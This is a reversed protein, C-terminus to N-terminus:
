ERRFIRLEAQKELAECIADTRRALFTRYGKKVNPDWLGSSSDYPILHSKMVRAFHQKRRFPALYQYPKEGGISQNEEAVIFCLNCLSNTERASFGHGRLAARPFIHHKDKRNSVSATRDVPMRSGSELYQPERLLLYLFFGTGLSAGVRYDTNRLDSRPVLDTFRFRGTGRRALRTFFDIDDRINQFYGRGIYRRGIATAWFWKRLERRQVTTPQRSDNQYFFFALLTVMNGSPLFSFNLVKLESTLYDVAKTVASEIRGWEKTFRHTAKAGPLEEKELRSIANEIAQSTISSQGAILPLLAQILRNDIRSFGHPLGSRLRTVLGRLDLRSAKSFARDAKSIRLGGSNIRLFAERVEDLSNTTVKQVPIRYNMLMSRMKAIENLKKNPLYAVRRRWGSSLIDVM